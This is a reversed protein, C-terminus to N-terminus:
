VRMWFGVWATTSSRTAASSPPVPARRSAEATLRGLRDGHQVDGFGAVVDDRRARDVAARVVEELVRELLEADVDREDLVLVVGLFPACRDTGFVFSNKASVIPLGFILMRSMRRTASTACSFPMGSITSLVIAVGYRILGNSNPASM